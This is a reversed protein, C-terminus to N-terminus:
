KRRKKTHRKLRGSEIAIKRKALEHDRQRTLERGTKHATVQVRPVHTPNLIERKFYEELERAHERKYQEHLEQADRFHQMAVHFQAITQRWQVPPDASELSHLIKELRPM